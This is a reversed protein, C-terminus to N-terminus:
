RSFARDRPDPGRTETLGAMARQFAHSHLNAPAPLLLDVAQAGEAAGDEVSAIRGEGGISVTVDARWGEPVLAERAHIKQM